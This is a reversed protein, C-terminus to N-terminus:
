KRTALLSIAELAKGHKVVLYPELTLLFELVQAQKNLNWITTGRYRESEPRVYIRGGFRRQFELLPRIDKTQNATVRVRKYKQRVTAIYICGEGDFFGALYSTKM